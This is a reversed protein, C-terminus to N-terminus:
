AYLDLVSTPQGHLLKEDETRVFNGIKQLEDSKIQQAVQRMVDAMSVTQPGVGITITYM